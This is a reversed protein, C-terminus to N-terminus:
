LIVFVFLKEYYLLRLRAEMRMSEVCSLVIHRVRDKYEPDVEALYQEIDQEIMLSRDAPLSKFLKEIMKVLSGIMAILHPIGTVPNGSQLAGGLHLVISSVGELVVDADSPEQNAQQLQPTQQSQTPQNQAYIM